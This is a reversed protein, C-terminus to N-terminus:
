KKIRNSKGIEEVEIKADCILRLKTGFLILKM